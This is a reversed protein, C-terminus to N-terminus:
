RSCSAHPLATRRRSPFTRRTHQLLAATRRRMRPPAPSNYETHAILVVIDQEATYRLLTVEIDM